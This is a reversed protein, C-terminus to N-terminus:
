IYIENVLCDHDGDIYIYIFVILCCRLMVVFNGIPYWYWPRKARKVEETCVM